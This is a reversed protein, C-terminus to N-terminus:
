TTTLRKYRNENILRSTNGWATQILLSQVNNTVETTGTWMFLPRHQNTHGIEHAPGWPSNKATTINLIHDLTGESYATRYSTAYMYGHYVVILHSRNVPNRNPYTYYGMFDRLRYVMDDYLNILELGTNAASRKYNKTPFTLHAHKGVVDM